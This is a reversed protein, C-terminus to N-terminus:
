IIISIHKAQGSRCDTGHEQDRTDPIRDVGREEPQDGVADAGTPPPPARQQEEASYRKAVKAFFGVVLEFQARPIKPYNLRLSASHPRLERPWRPAPVCSQFFRHHRCLYLGSSSLVYATPDAPLEPDPETKLYIPTVLKADSEQM